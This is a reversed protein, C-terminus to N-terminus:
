IVISCLEIKNDAIIADFIHEGNIYQYSLKINIAGGEFWVSQKLNEGPCNYLIKIRISQLQCIEALELSDEEVLILKNYNNQYCAIGTTEVYEVAEVDLLGQFSYNKFDMLAKEIAKVLNEKKTTSKM